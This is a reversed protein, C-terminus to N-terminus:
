PRSSRQRSTPDHVEVPAATGANAKTPIGIQAETTLAYQRAQDFYDSLLGVGGITVGNETIGPLSVSGNVKIGLSQKTQGPPALNTSMAGTFDDGAMISTVYPPVGSTYFTGDKQVAYIDSTGNAQIDTDAYLAAQPLISTSTSSALMQRLRSTHGQYTVTAEVWVRHDGNADYAPTSTTITAANDYVRYTPTPAPPPYAAVYQTNM